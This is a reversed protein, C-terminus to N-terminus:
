IQKNKKLVIILIVSGALVVVAAAVGIILGLSLDDDGSKDSEAPPASSNVQRTRKGAADNGQSPQSGEEIEKDPDAYVEFEYLRVTKQNEDQMPKYTSLRVYRGTKPTFERVIIEEEPDVNDEETVDEWYINDTSIEVKFQSVNYRKEDKDRQGQSAQFIKFKYVPYDAELDITIWHGVDDFEYEESDFNATGACWKTDTDGDNILTEDEPNESTEIFGSSKVPKQLAINTDKTYPAKNGGAASIMASQCIVTVIILSFLTYIYKKIKLKM